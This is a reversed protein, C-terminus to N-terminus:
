LFQWVARFRSFCIFCLAGVFNYGFKSETLAQISRQVPFFLSVRSFSSEQHILKNKIAKECLRQEWRLIILLLAIKSVLPPASIVGGFFPIFIPM